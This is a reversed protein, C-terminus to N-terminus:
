SARRCTRRRVRERRPGLFGRRSRGGSKVMLALATSATRATQTAVIAAITTSEPAQHDTNKAMSAVAAMPVPIHRLRPSERTMAMAPVQAAAAVANPLSLPTVQIEANAKRVVATITWLRM